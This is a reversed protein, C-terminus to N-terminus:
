RAAVRPPRRVAEALRAFDEVTLREARNGPDVGAIQFGEADVLGALANRLTKRRASFARRVVEAFVTEDRVPARPKALPVLRVVASDVKPPPSFAGPGVGFLREVRCRFQVMVGLRGYAPDGPGAALREVVERQLMAHLDRVAPTSELLHFLLPTSINYPLNGVVRLPSGRERALAAFDFRLADAAHVVLHGERAEPSAALTRALDRDLEVVDLRGCRELLPGTLAGRGPGIEVLAQGPRPDVAALIRAVVAPDHLFHQGFRKRPRHPAADPPVTM